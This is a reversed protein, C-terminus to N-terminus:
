MRAWPDGTGLRMGSRSACPRDECTRSYVERASSENRRRRQNGSIDKELQLLFRVDGRGENGDAIRRAWPRLPNPESTNTLREVAFADRM